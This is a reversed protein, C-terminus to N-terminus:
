RKPAIDILMEEVESRSIISVALTGLIEYKGKECRRVELTWISLLAAWRGMRRNLGSSQVLWALTLYRTLVKIGRLVLMVYFVDLHELLALM